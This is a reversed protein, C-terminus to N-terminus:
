KSLDKKNYYCIIYGEQNFDSFLYDCEWGHPYYSSPIGRYQALKILVRDEISKIDAVMLVDPNLFDIIWSFQNVRHAAMSLCESWIYEYQFNLYPNKLIAPINKSDRKISNIFCKKAKTLLAKVGKKEFFPNADDIATFKLSEDIELGSRTEDFKLFPYGNLILTQYPRIESFMRAITWLLPIQPGWGYCM